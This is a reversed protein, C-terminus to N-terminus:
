KDGAALAQLVRPLVEGSTGPLKIAAVRTIMSYDPNVEIITAGRDKAKGPMEAAPSVLGSTGIVLMVETEALLAYAAQLQEQPLLEGFWVVDPRVWCGCHPCLPPGGAQDWQLAAVDVPTPDGQCNYFCKNHAISGHLRIINKSGAREHLDDVNQTIIHLKPFRGELAALAYHGPNPQAPRMLERRYEYFDWVLKPNARFAAQTALQTPDFHAWLGDLADRFTPVGSEKSVGAGTLVTIRAAARLKEAAQNILEDTVMGSDGGQM